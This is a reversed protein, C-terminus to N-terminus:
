NKRLSRIYQVISRIKPRYLIADIMIRIGSTGIFAPKPPICSKKTLLFLYQYALAEKNLMLKFLTLLSTSLEKRGFEVRYFSQGLFFVEQEYLKLNKFLQQASLLTFFRLHTRELAGSDVYNFNGNMLSLRIGGFAVNPISIIIKTKESLNEILETLFEQPDSIHEIVDALVIYDYDNEKIDQYYAQAYGNYVTRYFPKAHNAAFKSPEVSDILLSKDAHKLLRGLVGSGSGVDLVSAGQPLLRVIQHLPNAPDKDLNRITSESVVYSQEPRKFL